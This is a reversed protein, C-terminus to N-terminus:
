GENAWEARKRNGTHLRMLKGGGGMGLRLRRNINGLQKVLDRVRDMVREVRERERM